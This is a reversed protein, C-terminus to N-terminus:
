PTVTSVFQWTKSASVVCPAQLLPDTGKTGTASDSDNIFNVAPSIPIHYESLDLPIPTASIVPTSPTQHLHLIPNFLEKNTRLIIFHSLSARIM